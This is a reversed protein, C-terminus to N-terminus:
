FDHRVMRFSIALDEVNGVMKTPNGLDEVLKQKAHASLDQAETLLDMLLQKMLKNEFVNYPAAGQIIAM